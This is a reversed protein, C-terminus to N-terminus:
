ELSVSIYYHFLSGRRKLIKFYEVLVRFCLNPEIMILYRISPWRRSNLISLRMKCRSILILWFTSAPVHLFLETWYKRLERLVLHKVWVGLSVIVIILLFAKVKDKLRRWGLWRRRNDLIVKCTSTIIYHYNIIIMWWSRM